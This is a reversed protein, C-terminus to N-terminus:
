NTAAKIPGAWKEIEGAVFKALYEPSRRDPAVLDVGADQLRQRVGPADMATLTARHLKSVIAAPTGKPLFMANWNVAEFGTLGQEHASALNPLAPSRTTAFIAIPKVLGAEIQPLVPASQPCQYDIRGAIVDQTATPGSRYPVHTVNIKIQANFLACALHTASGLGASGFQLNHQNARAYAIFEQLNGAPFDKRVILMTPQEALLAVPTFDAVADYLPKKHLSQSHAHTGINGLVVHYGDPAAKAVRATGTMGGAGGVNEIVVQQGLAKSLNPALIRGIIDSGGGPAFPVVMTIPRTPWTEAKGDSAAAAFAALAVILTRHM